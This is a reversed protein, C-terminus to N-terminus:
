TTRSLRVEEKKGKRKKAEREREREEMEGSSVATLATLHHSVVLYLSIALSAILM